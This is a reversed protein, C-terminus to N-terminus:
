GSRILRIFRIFRVEWVVLVCPWWTCVLFYNIMIAIASFIGFAGLPMVPSVATALFAVATTFSTNFVSGSAREYAVAIRNPLSTSIHPPLRATQKFADTFVFLDDAGVGLM